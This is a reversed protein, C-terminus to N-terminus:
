DLTLLVPFKLCCVRSVESIELLGLVPDRTGLLAAVSPSGIKPPGLPPPNPHSISRCLVLDPQRPLDVVPGLVVPIRLFM